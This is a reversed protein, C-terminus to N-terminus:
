ALYGEYDIAVRYPPAPPRYAESLGVVVTFRSRHRDVLGEASESSCTLAAKKTAFAANGHGRTLAAILADAEASSGNAGPPDAAFAVKAGCAAAAGELAARLTSAPAAGLVVVLGPKRPSVTGLMTTLRTARLAPSLLHHARYTTDAYYLLDAGAGPSLPLAAVAELHELASDLVVTLM